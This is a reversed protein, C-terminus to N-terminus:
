LILITNFHPNSLAMQPILIKQPQPELIIMQDALILSSDSLLNALNFKYVELYGNSHILRCLKKENASVRHRVPKM